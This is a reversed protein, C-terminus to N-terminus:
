DGCIIERARQCDIGTRCGSAVAESLRAANERFSSEPDADLSSFLDASMNTRYQTPILLDKGAVTINQVPSGLFRCSAWRCTYQEKRCRLVYHTENPKETEGSESAAAHDASIAFHRGAPFHGVDLLLALGTATVTM